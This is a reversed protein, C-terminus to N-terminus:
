EDQGNHSFQSLWEMKNLKEIIVLDVCCFAVVINTVFVTVLVDSKIFILVM